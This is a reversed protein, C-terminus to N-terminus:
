LVVEASAQQAGSAVEAEESPERVAAIFAVLLAPDFHHADVSVGSAVLFDSAYPLYDSVNEPTMGSAIALRCDPGIARRMSKIKAIEPASATAVGSTTPIMSIRKAAVAAAAPFPEVPQYKFAVSGFFRFGAHLQLFIAMAAATKGPGLSSVDPDDSWVMNLGADRVANLAKHPDVGLLNLGLAGPWRAAIIKAPRFLDDNRGDHSILFVGDAGCRVALEAQSVSTETDLHHIVPFVRHIM